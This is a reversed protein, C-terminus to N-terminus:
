GTLAHTRAVVLAGLILLVVISTGWQIVAQQRRPAYAFAAAIVSGTALGGVLAQWSIGSITFTLVLNIAILALIGSADRGLRRSVIFLAGFLGFIAGSAGVAASQPPMLLYAITSGGLASLFYLTVFRSRGLAAELTPGVILLAYMNFFIHLVNAHLFASTILRYYQGHAVGAILTHPIGSPILEYHLTFRNSTQQYIFAVVNVVILLRTIQGANTPMLGGFATRPKRVTRAGSRVCEPCQFGVSASNMCAPCIPRDCRICRVYTEVNPHRYCHPADAQQPAGAAEDEETM